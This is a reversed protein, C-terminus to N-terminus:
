LSYVQEHWYGSYTFSTFARELTFRILDSVALGVKAAIFAAGSGHSLPEPLENVFCLATPKPDSGRVIVVSENGHSGGVSFPIVPCVVNRPNNMKSGDGFVFQHEVSAVIREAHIWFMEKKSVVFLVSAVCNVFSSCGKPSLEASDNERCSQWRVSNYNKRWHM